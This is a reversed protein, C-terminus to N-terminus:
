VINSFIFISLGPPAPAEAAREEEAVREAAAAAREAAAAAAAAAEARYRGLNFNTEQFMLSKGGHAMMGGYSVQVRVREARLM